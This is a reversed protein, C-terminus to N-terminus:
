LPRRWGLLERASTKINNLTKKVRVRLEMVVVSVAKWAEQMNGAVGLLVKTILHADVYAFALARFVFTKKNGEIVM